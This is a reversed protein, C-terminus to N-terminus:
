DLTIGVEEIIGKWMENDRRFIENFSSAPEPEPVLSLNTIRQAVDPDNLAAVITDSLLEVIAPDMGAPGVVGFWGRTAMREYGLEDFTPADPMAPMRNPGTVALANMRGSQVYSQTGVGTMIIATVQGGLLDAVAAAEGPYPIHVWDIETQESFVHMYLHGSSGVGYSGFSHSTPEAKVRDVLEQPTAIGSDALTVVVLPTTVLQAIPTFDEIPDFPMTRLLYPTQILAPITLLITYGDPRANAVVESGIMTGGGPRNDVIVPQGLEGSIYDALLRALADTAGGPPFPIVMRIAQSPYDDSASAPPAAAVWVAFGLFLTFALRGAHALFNGLTM